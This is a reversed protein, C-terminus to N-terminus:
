AHSKCEPCLVFVALPTRAAEVVMLWGDVPKVEYVALGPITMVDFHGGKKCLLCQAPCRLVAGVATDIDKFFKKDETTCLGEEKSEECM